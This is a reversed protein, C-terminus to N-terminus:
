KGVEGSTPAQVTSASQVQFPFPENSCIDCPDGKLKVRYMYYNLIIYLFGFMFAFMTSSIKFMLGKDKNCQLSVSVALFNITFLFFVFVFILSRSFNRSILNTTEEESNKKSM